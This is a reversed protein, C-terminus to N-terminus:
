LNGDVIKGHVSTKHITQQKIKPNKAEIKSKYNVKRTQEYQASDIRGNNAQYKILTLSM